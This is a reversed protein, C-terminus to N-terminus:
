PRVGSLVEGTTADEIWLYDVDPPSSRYLRKFVTRYVHGEKVVLVARQEYCRPLLAGRLVSGGFCGGYVVTHPGPLLRARSRSQTSKGNIEAVPPQGAEVWDLTAVRTDAVDPERYPEVPPEAVIVRIEEDTVELVRVALRFFRIVRIDADYTLERSGVLRRLDNAAYERSLLTVEGARRGAYLL